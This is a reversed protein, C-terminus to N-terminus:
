AGARDLLRTQVGLKIQAAIDAVSQAADIVLFRSPEAAAFDLFAQRIIRHYDLGMKEFRAEGGRENARALGTEPDIDLLITLDPQMHGTIMAQLQNVYDLGLAGAVGQYARTSDAFRDCIVWRGENLAPDIVRAVHEARDATMLLAEAIPTWREKDGTLLLERLAAGQSTGGPERTKIVAIDQSSLFEYLRAIQTTKGAGEGGEFTIFCGQERSQKHSGVDTVSCCIPSRPFLAHM